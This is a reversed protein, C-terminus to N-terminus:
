LLGVWVQCNREPCLSCFFFRIVLLLKGGGSWRYFAWTATTTWWGRYLRRFKQTLPMSSGISSFFLLLFFFCENSSACVFVHLVKIRQDNWKMSDRARRKFPRKSQARRSIAFRTRILQTRLMYQDFAQAEVTLILCIHTAPLHNSLRAPGCEDSYQDRQM